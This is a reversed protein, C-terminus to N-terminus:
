QILVKFLITHIAPESPAGLAVSIGARTVGAADAFPTGDLTLSGPVYATGAPIPDDIRVGNSPGPVSATLTYTIVAGSVARASGDPALVSQAKVLAGQATTGVIPVIIQAQAGTPGVVADGGGDGQRAFLTRPTGYGTASRATIINQAGEFQGAVGGLLLLQLEAGPALMPTRADALLQDRSPDYLGDGDMDIAFRTPPTPTGDVASLNFAEQGNGRNTLILAIATTASPIPDDGRRALAVDLREAVLDVVQNSRVETDAEGASYRVTAVNVIGTGAITQAHSAQSVTAGAVLVSALCSKGFPM